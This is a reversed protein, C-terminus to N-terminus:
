GTSVRRGINVLYYRVFEDIRREVVKYLESDVENKITNLLQYLKETDIDTRLVEVYKTINHGLSMAVLVSHGELVRM